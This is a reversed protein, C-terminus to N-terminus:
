RSAGLPFQMIPRIRTPAVEILVLESVFGRIQRITGNIEGALEHLSDITPRAGVTMHPMFSTDKRLHSQLPGEYLRDHLLAIQDRGEEPVLFIHGGDGGAEPVVAARRIVFRMPETAAAVRGVHAELIRKSVMTPFILTFHARIREAQPDHKARISEIWQREMPEISPFAVIACLASDADM